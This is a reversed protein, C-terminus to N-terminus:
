TSAPQTAMSGADLAMTECTGTPPSTVVCHVSADPLGALVETADGTHLTIRDDRYYPAPM